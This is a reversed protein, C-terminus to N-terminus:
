GCARTGGVLRGLVFRWRGMEQEAFNGPSAHAAVMKGWLQASGLYGSLEVGEPCADQVPGPPLVDGIATASRTSATAAATVGNGGGSFSGATVPNGGVSHCGRSLFQLSILTTV